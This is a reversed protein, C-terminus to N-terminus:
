ERRLQVGVANRRLRVVGAEVRALAAPMLFHKQAIIHAHDGGRDSESHPDVFRVHTEHDVVIQRLVDLAVILFGPAGPAVTQRAFADEEEARAIHDLLGTEDIFLALTFRPDRALLQALHHMVRLRAFAPAGGEQAVEALFPRVLRAATAIIAQGRALSEVARDRRLLKEGTDMADVLLAAEPESQIVDDFHQGARLGFRHPLAPM